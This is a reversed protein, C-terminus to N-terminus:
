VSCGCGVWWSFNLRGKLPPLHFQDHNATLTGHLLKWYWMKNRLILSWSAQDCWVCSKLLSRQDSLSHTLSHTLSQTLQSVERNIILYGQGDIMYSIMMVSDYSADPFKLPLKTTEIDFACVRVEARQLLDTRRELRTQSAEMSVMYWLGCRIDTSCCCWTSLFNSGDGFEVREITAQKDLWGKKVAYSSQWISLFEPFMRAAAGVMTLLLACMIHYMMSACRWFSTLTTRYREQLKSPAACELWLCYSVIIM